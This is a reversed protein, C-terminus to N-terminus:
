SHNGKNLSFLFIYPWKGSTKSSGIKINSESCGFVHHCTTNSCNPFCSGACQEGYLGPPCTRSCQPGVYGTACAVFM